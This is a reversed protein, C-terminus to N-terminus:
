FRCLNGPFCQSGRQPRKEISEIVISDTVDGDREDWATVGQKLEDETAQISVELVEESAKLVYDETDIEAENKEYYRYGAFVTALCLVALIIRARKM